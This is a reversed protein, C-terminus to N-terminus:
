SNGKKISAQEVIFALDYGSAVGRINVDVQMQGFGSSVNSTDVSTRSPSAFGGVNPPKANTFTSGIGASASGGGGGGGKAKGLFGSVLAFAGALFVPLLALGLPGLGKAGDTAIVASNVLAEKTGDAVAQDSKAKNAVSIARIASIIKPTAAVFTTVFGRLSNNSIDLSAVLGTGFQSFIDIVEKTYDTADVKSKDLNQKIAATQSALKEQFGDLPTLISTELAGSEVTIEGQAKEFFDGRRENAAIDLLRNIETLDEKVRQIKAPEDKPIIGGGSEGFGFTVALEKNLEILQAKLQDSQNGQATLLNETTKVIREQVEAQSKLEELQSKLGSIKGKAVGSGESESFAIEKTKQLIRNQLEFATNEEKLLQAQLDIRERIVENFKDQFAEATAKKEIADTLLNYETTLDSTLAKEQTLGSLVNPYLSILKNYAGIRVDNAINQDKLIAFLTDLEIRENQVSKTSKNTIAEYASLNKVTDQIEDDLSEFSKEVEKNGLISDFAGMQYATFGATLASIALLGLNVPSILSTFSAALAKGVGLKKGTEDLSNSLQGFNGALQQINNGIGIIGFPSDQIIRNFEIAVGNANGVKKTLVDTSQSLKNQNAILSATNAKEYANSLLDIQKSTRQVEAQQKVLFGTIRETKKAFDEQSISGQKYENALKDLTATYKAVKNSAVTFQQQSKELKNEVTAMAAKFSAIDATLKIQLENM